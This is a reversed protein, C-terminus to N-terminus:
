DAHSAPRDGGPKASGPPRIGLLHFRRALRLMEKSGLNFGRVQDSLVANQILHWM